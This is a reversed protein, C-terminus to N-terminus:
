PAETCPTARPRPRSALSHARLRTFGERDRYQALDHALTSKIAAVSVMWNLAPRLVDACILVKLAGSLEAPLWQSRRGQGNLWAM